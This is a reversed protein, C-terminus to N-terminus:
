SEPFVFHDLAHLDYAGLIEPEIALLFESFRSVREADYPFGPSVSGVEGGRAPQGDVAIVQDHRIRTIVAELYEFSVTTQGGRNPVILVLSLAM